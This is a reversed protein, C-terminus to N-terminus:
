KKQAPRSIEGSRTELCVHHGVGRRGPLLDTGLTERDRHLPAPSPGRLSLRLFALQPELALGAWYEARLPLALRCRQNGHRAARKCNACPAHCLRQALFFFFADEAGPWAKDVRKGDCWCAGPDAGEDLLRGLVDARVSRAAVHVM